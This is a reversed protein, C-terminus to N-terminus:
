KNMNAWLRRLIVIRSLKNVMMAFFASRRMLRVSARIGRVFVNSAQTAQAPLVDVTPFSLESARDLQSLLYSHRTASYEQIPFHGLAHIKERDNSAFILFSNSHEALTKATYFGQWMRGENDGLNFDSLYCRSKIRGLKDYISSRNAEDILAQDDFMLSPVKYDPFPYAFHYESLAAQELLSQWESRTYTRIGSSEPYDDLGVYPVGYHDECAGMLYKLGVRNEIAILTVGNPKAAKKAMALLDLLAQQDTERQSFRGAYEMVGIFLVLDYHNEPIDIQNFNASSITVSDLDRCRLAALAARSPSGEISDVEIGNQEGLYRTISGCGCGLELVRRIGSLNLPRLLNARASSLHYESPWDVIQENLEQSDSSLDQADSLIGHLLQESTQGDSYAFPETGLAQYVGNEQREFGNVEVLLSM